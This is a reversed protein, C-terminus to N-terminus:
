WKSPANEPCNLSVVEDSEASLHAVIDYGAPEGWYKIQGPTKLKPDGLSRRLARLTVGRKLERCIQVNNYSGQRPRTEDYVVLGTAIILILIVFIKLNGNM